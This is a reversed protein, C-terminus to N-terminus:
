FQYSMSCATALTCLVTTFSCLICTKNNKNKQIIKGFIILMSKRDFFIACVLLPHIKKEFVTNMLKEKGVDSNAVVAQM